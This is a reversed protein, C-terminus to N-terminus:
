ATPNCAATRSSRPLQPIVDKLAIYIDDPPLRVQVQWGRGDTLTRHQAPLSDAFTHAEIKRLAPQRRHHQSESWKNRRM